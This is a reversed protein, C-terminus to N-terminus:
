LHKIIHNGFAYTSIKDPALHRKDDFGSLCKKYMTEVYLQHSHSRISDMSLITESNQFLANKYLSLFLKKKIASKCIGKAKKVEDKDKIQYAYLKSRLGCFREIPSGNSEDKFKGLVKKNKNSQLLHNEPYDSTDYYHMYDLTDVYLDSKSDKIDISFSDTDTMLLRCKEGYRKLIHNYYFDYM